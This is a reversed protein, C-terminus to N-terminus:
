SHTADLALLDDLWARHQAVVDSWRYHEEVYRKGQAGLQRAKGLLDSSLLRAFEGSNAYWLGGGSRRCQGVLVSSLGNALIPTGLSWAELAVISLSEYRSPMVLVDAAALANWKDEDSIQGLTVVDDHKPLTMELPGALVLKRAGRESRRLEVFQDVMEACGKAPDVRGLYLAFSADLGHALRFAEPDVARPPDIGIGIAPGFNGLEGFRREVLRREDRSAFLIGRPRRFLDDWIPLYFPWEDHALPVLVAADGAFPLVQYTTAYLYTYFYIADYDRASREVFQQLASCVPGQAAIWDQQRWLPVSAGSELERSLREFAAGDRPVDVAFRQLPVGAVNSPGPEYVNEWTTYDRACTTLIEVDWAERLHTATELCLREAGGAIDSGCRQVVFAVRPRRASHPV